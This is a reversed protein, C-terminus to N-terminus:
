NLSFEPIVRRVAKRMQSETLEQARRYVEAVFSQHALNCNALLPVPFAIFAPLTESLESVPEATAFFKSIRNEFM